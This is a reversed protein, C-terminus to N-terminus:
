LQYKLLEAVTQQYENELSLYKDEGEYFYMIEMFFEISSIEGLRLAKELLATNNLGSLLGEYEQLTNQLTQQKEYLRRNTYLHETRERTVAQNSWNIQAQALKVKNKDEWLPISVGAMFGNYQQGLIAQYRYGAQFSPLVLARNVSLQEQSIEQQQEFYNLTPDNAETLPELVEFEPIDDMEPYSTVTFLMEEGGNLATLQETLQVIQSELLALDNNLNLRLLKAKNVELINANGEALRREYDQVLRKANSLRQNFVAQRKRAYILNLCLQKAELLVQQRLSDLVFSLQNIQAEALDKKRFYTTPFDFAQSITLDKQTGAEAPTGPLYEFALMPNPLYIDTKFSLAQAEVYQRRAQLTPNNQEVAGLVEEVTNQAEVKRNLGFIITLLIIFFRYKKM